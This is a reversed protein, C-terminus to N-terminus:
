LIKYAEEKGWLFHFLFIRDFNDGDGDLASSAFQAAEKFGFHTTDFPTNYAFAKFDYHVLLYVEDLGARTRLDKYREDSTHAVLARKLTELMENPSYAGGPSPFRIWDIDDQTVTGPHCELSHLYKGLIPFGTFDSIDHRCERLGLKESWNNDVQQILAFMQERFHTADRQDFRIQKPFPRVYGIHKTENRSQEGIAKLINEQIREQKRAETIQERNVWSKLEVGIKKGSKTVAIIDPRKDFPHPPPDSARKLYWEEVVDWEVIEHALEPYAELFSAFILKENRMAATPVQQLKKVIEIKQEFPLKALRQRRAIKARFIDEVTIANPDFPERIM